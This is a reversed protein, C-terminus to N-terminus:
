ADGAERVRAPLRGEASSGDGHELFWAYTQRIGEPLPIRPKWGAELLRTIDLLKRPAGDPKSRDFVIEGRYGVIERV